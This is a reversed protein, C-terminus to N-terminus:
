SIANSKILTEILEKDLEELYESLEIPSYFTLKFKIHELYEKHSELVHENQVLRILIRQVLNELRELKNIKNFM